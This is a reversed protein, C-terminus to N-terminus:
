GGSRAERGEDSPQVLYFLCDSKAVAADVTMM